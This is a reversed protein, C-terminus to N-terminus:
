SVAAVAPTLLPRYAALTAGTSEKYLERPLRPAIQNVIVPVAADALKEGDVGPVPHQRLEAEVAARTAQQFQPLVQKWEGDAVDRPKDIPPTRRVYPSQARFTPVIPFFGPELAEEDTRLSTFVMWLFPLLFLAAGTLLTLHLTGRAAVYRLFRAAGSRSRSSSLSDGPTATTARRSPLVSSSRVNM